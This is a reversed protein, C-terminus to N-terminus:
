DVKEFEVDIIDPDSPKPGVRGPESRPQEFTPSGAGPPPWSQFGSPGFSQVRVRKTAWTVVHAKLWNRVQPILLSFGFLDTLLGPTLLVAGAILILIGNVAAAAPPRGAAMDERLQQVAARGQWRSLSAGLFGTLLILGITFQLSTAKGIEILLMLEVIPILTFLLLLRFFM